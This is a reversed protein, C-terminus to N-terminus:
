CAALLADVIPQNAAPFSYASIDSLKVWRWEQGEKAKVAGHIAYAHYFQLRVNKEPYQYEVQQFFKLSGAQINLEEWLERQLAQEPSELADVKGGPFEWLGGLHADALRKSILIADRESNWIIAAVVDICQM